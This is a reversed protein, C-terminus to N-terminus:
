IYVKTYDTYASQLFLKLSYISKKSIIQKCWYALGGDDPERDLAIRYCRTVFHIMGPTYVSPASSGKEPVSGSEIGFGACINKFETSGCFGNVLQAVSAGDMVLSLWYKKGSSEAQRDLMSLYLIEVLEEPSKRMRSFETSDLFGSIVQAASQKHSRLENAWYRIGAADPERGLILKYCRTIFASIGDNPLPDEAPLVGQEETPVAGAATSLEDPTEAASIAEASQPITSADAGSVSANPCKTERTFGNAVSGGACRAGITSARDRM